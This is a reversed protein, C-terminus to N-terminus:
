AYKLFVFNVFRRVTIIIHFFLLTKYFFSFMSSCDSVLCVLKWKLNIKVVSVDIIQSRSCILM